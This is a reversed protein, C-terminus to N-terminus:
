SVLAAIVTGAVVFAVLSALWVKVLRDASRTDSAIYGVGWVYGVLWVAGIALPHVTLHLTAYGALGWLVNFALFTRFDTM